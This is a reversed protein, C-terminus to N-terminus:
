QNGRIHQHSSVEYEILHTSTLSMPCQQSMSSGHRTQLKVLNMDNAAAKVLCKPDTGKQWWKTASEISYILRYIHSKRVPLIDSVRLYSWATVPNCNSERFTIAAVPSFPTLTLAVGRRVHSSLNVLYQVLNVVAGAHLM